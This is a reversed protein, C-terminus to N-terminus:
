AAQIELATQVVFANSTLNGLSSHPRHSNYDEKWASIRDRAEPVSYYNGGIAVFGDHSVRRELKLVAGFPQDPLNQLENQEAAFAEAVIRQTTGHTLANAVSGLWDILQVNM